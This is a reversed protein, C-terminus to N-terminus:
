VMALKPSLMYNLVSGTRGISIILGMPFSIESKLFWKIIMSTQCIGICEGGFGFFMRGILMVYINNHYCGTAFIFQGVVLSAGYIIFMIRIGFKMIFIGGIFPLIINPFSYISYMLNYYFEFNDLNSFEKKM